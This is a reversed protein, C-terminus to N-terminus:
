YLCRTRSQFHNLKRSMQNIKIYNNKVSLRQDKSELCSFFIDGKKEVGETKCSSAPSESIKLKEAKGSSGVDPAPEEDSLDIVEAEVEPKM